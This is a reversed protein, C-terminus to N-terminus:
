LCPNSSGSGYCFTVFGCCQKATGLWLHEGLPGMKEGAAHGPLEAMLQCCQVARNNEYIEQLSHFLPYKQAERWLEIKIWELPSDRPCRCYYKFIYIFSFFRCITNLMKEFIDLPPRIDIVSIIVKSYALHGAITAACGTKVCSQLNSDEM